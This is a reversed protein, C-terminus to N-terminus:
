KMDFLKRLEGISKGKVYKEYFSSRGRNKDCNTVFFYKGIFCQTGKPIDASDKCAYWATKAYDDLNQRKYKEAITESDKYINCYWPIYKKKIPIVEWPTNQYRDTKNEYLVVSKKYVDEQLGIYCKKFKLNEGNIDIGKDIYQYGDDRYTSVPVSMGPMCPIAIIASTHTDQWNPNYNKRFNNDEYTDHIMAAKKASDSKLSKGSWFCIRDKWTDWTFTDEHGGMGASTFDTFDVFYYTGDYDKIYNYMHGSRGSISVFGIEAYDGQLLYAVVCATECCVGYNLALNIRPDCDVSWGDRVYGMAGMLEDYRYRSTKLYAMVESVTKIKKKMYSCYPDFQTQSYGYISTAYAVAKAMTMAEDNKYFATEYFPVDMVGKAKKTAANVNLSGLTTIVLLAILVSCIIKKVSNVM